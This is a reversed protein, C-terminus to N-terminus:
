DQVIIPLYIFKVGYCTYILCGQRYNYTNFVPLRAFYFWLPWHQCLVIYNWACLLRSSNFYKFYINLLILKQCILSLYMVLDRYFTLFTEHIMGSLVPREKYHLAADVAFCVRVRAGIQLVFLIRAFYLNWQMKCSSQM